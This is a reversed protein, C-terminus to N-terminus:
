HRGRGFCFWLPLAFIQFFHGVRKGQSFWCFNGLGKKEAPFVEAGMLVRWSSASRKLGGPFGAARLQDGRRRWVGVSSELPLCGNAPVAYLCLVPLHHRRRRRRRHHHHHHHREKLTSTKPTLKKLLLVFLCSQLPGRLFSVGMCGLEVGARTEVPSQHCSSRGPPEPFVSNVILVGGPLPDFIPYGWFPKGQYISGFVLVQPGYGPPKIKVWVWWFPM